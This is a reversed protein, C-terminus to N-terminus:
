AQGPGVGAQAARVRRVSSVHVGRADLTALLEPVDMDASTVLRLVTCREERAAVHPMLAARLCPGLEGAVTLEVVPASSQASQPPV